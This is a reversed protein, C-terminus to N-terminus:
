DGLVERLVQSLHYLEFPKQLFGRGGKAMIEAVDGGASYGSVLLVKVQPNIKKLVEFIQGGSIGPLVMDLMVMDINANEREYLACATAGNDATLVQYGLTELIELGIELMIAEDDILLITEHGHLLCRTEPPIVVATAERSSLSAAPLYLSFTAGCGPKSSVDIAGGHNRMIGYASALGLGTGRGIEKTTFFPDFIRMQIRKDIGSGSDKISILVYNGVAIDFNVAIQDDILINETKLSLEGGGSMAQGANLYLNLLVQELQSKDVEVASVGPDLELSIEIDKRTRGFMDVAQSIIMNPDCIETEYKGGRALGLLQGSLKAGSQICSEIRDLKELDRSEMRSDMKLLSVNGAMATLLNNFDHAVGGALTGMSEMKQAQQRQRETSKELSINRLFNLLAPKGNWSILSVDLEADFIENEENQMEIQVTLSTTEGNNLKEFAGTLMERDGFKVLEFFDIGVMASPGYGLIKETKENQFRIVGDQLIFIASGAKEVLLRYMAESERLAEEAVKHEVIESHLQLNLRKLSQERSRVERAMLDFRNLIEELEEILIRSRNEEYEGRAILDVAELLAALPEKLQIRLLFGTCLIVALVVFFMILLSFWMQRRVDKLFLGLSLGIEVRGIVRGQYLINRSRELLRRRGSVKRVLEDGEEDIIRLSAVSKISSYTAAIKDIGEMDLTWVPLELSDALRVIYEDAQQELSQRAQRSSYLYNVAIIVGAVVIVLLALSIALDRSISRHTKM